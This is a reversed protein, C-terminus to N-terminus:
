FDFCDDLKVSVVRRILDLYVEWAERGSNILKQVFGFAVNHLGNEAPRDLVIAGGLGAINNEKIIRMWELSFAYAKAEEDHAGGLAETLVHGLEHGLTLMVRALSGAKVFIESVLGQRRRNVSLGMVGPSDHIKSFREKSLVSVKIEKPFRESFIKEFAEEVYERVEEAEGVFGGEKGSVIFEDPIFNYEPRINFMQYSVAAEQYKAMVVSEVGTYVEGPIFSSDSFGGLSEYSSSGGSYGGSSQYGSSAMYELGGSSYGQSMQYM